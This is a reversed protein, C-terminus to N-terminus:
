QFIHTFMFINLFLLRPGKWLLSVAEGGWGRRVPLEPDASEESLRPKVDEAACTPGIQMIGPDIFLGGVVYLLKIIFM